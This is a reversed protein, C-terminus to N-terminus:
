RAGTKKPDYFKELSFKEELYRSRWNPDQRDLLLGEVGGFPYFVTREWKSLDLERMEKLTAALLRTSTSVATEPLHFTTHHFVCAGALKLNHQRFTLKRM